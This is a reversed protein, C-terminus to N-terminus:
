VLVRYSINCDDFIEHCIRGKASIGKENLFETDMFVEWTKGLQKTSLYTGNHVLHSAHSTLLWVDRYIGSGPYWRSNPLHYENRLLLENDGEQLEESLDVVFESYGHKWTFIKKQNLYITTDM